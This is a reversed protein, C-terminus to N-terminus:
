RKTTYLHAEIVFECAWPLTGPPAELRAPPNAAYEESPPPLKVSMVAKPATFAPSLLMTPPRIPKSPIPPEIEFEEACFVRTALEPGFLMTPPIAPMLSPAMELELEVAGTLPALSLKMPPKTPMLKPTPLWDETSGVIVPLPPPLKMPPMAPRFM